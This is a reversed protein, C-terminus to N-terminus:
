EERLVLAPDTGAARRAPVWAAAATVVTMVALTLALTQPDGPSLDYLMSRTLRTVMLAAPVGIALGASLLTLSERLFLWEVSRRTAGIAIRLGIERRRRAVGYSLVGYLGAAAIALALLGFVSSVQAVLRETLLVRDVVERFPAVNKVSVRPDLSKAAALLAARVDGTSRIAFRVSPRGASQRYPRYYMAPSEERLNIWKSDEVVGVVEVEAVQSGDAREINFRQGIASQGSFFRRAFMRNVIAVQPAKVDDYDTFDRGAALRTGMAAPFGPSVRQELAERQRDTLQLSNGRSGIRYEIGGGSLQGIHSFSVAEVGPLAALLVRLEEYFRDHQAEHYERPPELDAVTLGAERYGTDQWRLNELSRVFIGAVMLLTTCMAVEGIALGRSLWGGERRGVRSEIRTARLAPLLGFLLSTLLPLGVMAALLGPAAEFRLNELIPSQERPLFSLLATRTWWAVVLALAGGAASIALSETFLQRVLRGRAAGLAQRAALEKGRAATGALVLNALNACAILLVLATVVGLLMLPRSLKGRLASYGAAGGEVQVPRRLIATVEAQAQQPTAANQLRGTIRFMRGRLRTDSGPPIAQEMGVWIDTPFDIETGRFGRPAIGAVTFERRAYTFRAGLAEDSGAFHRQWYSESIVALAENSDHFLRGRSAGVGLVDFYDESVMQVYAPYKEGREDIESPREFNRSMAIVRMLRSSRRLQDYVPYSFASSENEQLAVLEAPSEVPLTRLLLANVLSFVALNGGIGLALTAMAAATFGPRARMMRLAFRLDQTTEDLARLGLAHRCDDKAADIAGFELRARREAEAPPMGSRQYDEACAAIHFRLEADMDSEVRERNKMRRWFSGLKM